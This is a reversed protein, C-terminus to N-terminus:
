RPPRRAARRGVVESAPRSRWSGRWRSASSAASGRMRTTTARPFSQTRRRDGAASAAPRAMRGRGREAVARAHAASRAAVSRSSDGWGASCSCRCASRAIISSTKPRPADTESTCRSPHLSRRRATSCQTVRIQTSRATAANFNTGAVGYPNVMVLFSAARAARKDKQEAVGARAPGGAGPDVEDVDAGAGARQDDRRGALRQEDVAARGARCAFIMGVARVREADRRDVVRDERVVVDIVIPPRVSTNLAPGPPRCRRRCRRRPRVDHRRARRCRWRCARVGRVLVRRRWRGHPTVRASSRAPCLHDVEAAAHAGGTEDGASPQQAAAADRDGVVSRLESLM